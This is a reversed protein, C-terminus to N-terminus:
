FLDYSFYWRSLLYLHCWILCFPNKKWFYRSFVQPIQKPCFSNKKLIVTFVGSSNKSVFLIKTKLFVTFVGSLNKSVFFSKKEFIGHFCRLFKKLCFPNKKLFLTFIGASNKSVFFSEKKLFVTFVGSSNKPVFLILFFFPVIKLFTNARYIFIPVQERSSRSAFHGLTNFIRCKKCAGNKIDRSSRSAFHGLTNFIRCKKGTELFIIEHLYLIGAQCTCIVGFWILKM